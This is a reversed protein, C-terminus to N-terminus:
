GAATTPTQACGTEARMPPGMATGTEATGSTQRHTTAPSRRTRSGGPQSTAGMGSLFLEVARATDLFDFTKEVTEDSPFGDHFRLKGLYKSKVKDPTLLSQPVDAKYTPEARALPASALAAILFAALFKDPSLM